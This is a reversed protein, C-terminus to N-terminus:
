NKHCKCLQKMKMKRKLCDDRHHHHRSRHQRPPPQYLDHNHQSIESFEEHSSFDEYSV